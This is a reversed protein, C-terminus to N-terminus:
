GTILKIQQTLKVFDDLSLQEARKDLWPLQEWGVPLHLTKLANRLTKRRQGFGAKVVKTFLETQQVLPVSRRTMRIVGSEVKPPPDFVHPPVTFLYEVDYIIQTLVSTIGYVKSGHSSAIRQAVEKQFMGVVVPVYAHYSLIHFVIQTSINYPFNGIIACGQPFLQAMNLTLFDGKILHKDDLAYELSLSDYLTYDLENVHLDFQDYTRLLRTLAGQGPGIELLDGKYGSELMANVIREAISVDKLFHQGLSKKHVFRSM